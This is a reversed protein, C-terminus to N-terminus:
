LEKDAKVTLMSSLWESEMNLVTPNLIFRISRVTWSKTDPLEIESLTEGISILGIMSMLAGYVGYLVSSALQIVFNGKETEATSSNLLLGIYVMLILVSIVPFMITQILGSYNFPAGLGGIFIYINSSCAAILFAVSFFNSFRLEILCILALVIANVNLLVLLGRSLLRQMVTTKSGDDELFSPYLFAVMGWLNFSESVQDHRQVHVIMQNIIYGFAMIMMNYFVFSGTSGSGIYGYFTVAIVSILITATVSIYVSISEGFVSSIPAIFKVKPANFCPKQDEQGKAVVATDKRCPVKDNAAGSVLQTSIILFLVFYFLFGLKNYKM